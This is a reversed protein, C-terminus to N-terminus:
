KPVESMCLRSFGKGGFFLFVVLQLFINRNVSL